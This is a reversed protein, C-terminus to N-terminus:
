ARKSKKRVKSPKSRKANKPLTPLPPAKGPAATTATENVSYTREAALQLLKEWTEAMEPPITNFLGSPDNVLFPKFLGPRKETFLEELYPKLRSPDMVPRRELIKDEQSERGDLRDLWIHPYPLPVGKHPKPEECQVKLPSQGHFTTTALMYAIDVSIPIRRVDALACLRFGQDVCPGLYDRPASEGDGLKPAVEVNSVPFGAGWFTGKLSLAAHEPKKKLQATYENIADRFAIAHFAVAEHREIQASFLIEDGVFKWVAM